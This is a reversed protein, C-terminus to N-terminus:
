ESFESSVWYHYRLSFSFHVGKGELYESPTPTVRVSLALLPGRRPDRLPFSTRTSGSHPQRVTFYWVFLRPNRYKPNSYNTKLTFRSTLVRWKLHYYLRSTPPTDQSDLPGEGVTRLELQFGHTLPSAPVRALAGDM